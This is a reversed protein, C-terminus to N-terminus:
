KSSGAPLGILAIIKKVAAQSPDFQEAAREIAERLTLAVQQIHDKKWFDRRSSRHLFETWWVLVMADPAGSLDQMIREPRRARPDWREAASYLFPGRGVDFELDALMAKAWAWDYAALVAAYDADTKPDDPVNSKMPILVLNLKGRPTGVREQEAVLDIRGGLVAKLIKLNRALGAPTSDEQTLLLYTFQGYRAPHSRSTVWLAVVPILRAPRSAGRSAWGSDPTMSSSMSSTVTAGPAGVNGTQALIIAAQGNAVLAAIQQETFGYARLRASQEATLPESPTSAAAPTPPASVPAPTAAMPSAAPAVGTPADINMCGPFVTAAALAPFLAFSRALKM